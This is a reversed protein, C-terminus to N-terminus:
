SPIAVGRRVAEHRLKNLAALSEESPRIAGREWRSVSMKDVGLKDALEKQTLGLAERLATIFGPSPPRDLASTALARVRDLFRVGEPLFAAAGSRDATVWRGPVEVFLTRGDPLKMTYPHDPRSLAPNPKTGRRYRKKVTTTM